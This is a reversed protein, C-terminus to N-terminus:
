PESEVPAPASFEDLFAQPTVVAVGRFPHMVLLDKDGTVLHTARGSVALELFKNDKPDRCDEVVTTVAVPKAVAIIWELFDERTELKVLRDFKTRHLVEDLELMTERSILIPGVIMARTVALKPVSGSLLAASVLVNTDFVTRFENPTM